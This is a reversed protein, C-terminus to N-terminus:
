EGWEFLKDNGVGYLAAAEAEGSFLVLAFIFTLYSIAKRMKGAVNEILKEDYERNM